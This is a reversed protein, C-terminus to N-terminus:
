LHRSIASLNQRHMYQPSILAELQHKSTIDVLRMFIDKRKAKTLNDGMEEVPIGRKNVKVKTMCIGAQIKRSHGKLTEEAEPFHKKVADMTLEPWTAYNGAKIAKTWTAKTPFGAAVHLFRIIEPQM